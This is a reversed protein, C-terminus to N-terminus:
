AQMSWFQRLGAASTAMVTRTSLEHCCPRGCLPAHLWALQQVPSGPLQPAASPQCVEASHRSLRLNEDQLQQLQANKQEIIAGVDRQFREHQQQLVQLQEQLLM